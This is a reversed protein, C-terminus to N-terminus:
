TGGPRITTVKDNGQLGLREKRVRDFERKLDKSELEDDIHKRVARRVAFALSMDGHCHCYDMLDALLGVGLFKFREGTTARRSM